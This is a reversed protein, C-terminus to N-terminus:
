KRLANMKEAIKGVEEHMYQSLAKEAAKFYARKAKRYEKGSAFDKRTKDFSITVRNVAEQQLLAADLIISDWQEANANDQLMEQIFICEGAISGCSRRIAKKLDRKNAM